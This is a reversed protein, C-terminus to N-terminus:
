CPGLTSYGNNEDELILITSVHCPAISFHSFRLKIWEPM